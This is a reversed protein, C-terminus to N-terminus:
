SVIKFFNVFNYLIPNNSESFIDFINIFVYSFRLTVSKVGFFNSKSYLLNISLEQLYMVFVKQLINKRCSHHCLRLTQLNKLRMHFIFRFIPLVLM